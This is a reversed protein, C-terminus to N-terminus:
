KANVTIAKECFVHKGNNVAKLLYEYHLNHPTSIYVIDVEPNKIMEDCDNYVNAVNFEKAFEQAKELNIDGVAYVEGNVENLATAMERGINGTGLIAWNYKKM